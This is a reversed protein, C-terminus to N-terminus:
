TKIWDMARGRESPFFSEVEGSMVRAVLRMLPRMWQSSTIIGVKEFDRRHALGLRVDDWVAAPEMGPFGNGTDMLLRAKYHERLIAELRPILVDRYDQDTLKETARIIVVNGESQPLVELMSDEKAKPPYHGIL